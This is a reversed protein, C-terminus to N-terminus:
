YHRLILSSAKIVNFIILYAAMYVYVYDNVYLFLCKTLFVLFLPGVHLCNTRKRRCGRLVINRISFKLWDHVCDPGKKRFDPCVKRNEFLAPSAEGRRM